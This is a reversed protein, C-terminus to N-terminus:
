NNNKQWRSFGAWLQVAAALLWFGVVILACHMFFQEPLINIIEDADPDFIWYDNSFFVRHFLLFMRQFDIAMAAALLLPLVITATGSAKLLRGNIPKRKFVAFGFIGLGSLAGLLYIISFINRCDEFHSAGEPTFSLSPLSFDGESFPTLYEMVANYNDLIEQKELGSSEPINLAEIDASYPFGSIQIFALGLATSFLLASIGLLIGGFFMAAKSNKM